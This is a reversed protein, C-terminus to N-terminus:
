KVLNYKDILSEDELIEDITCNLAICLKCLTELKVGDVLTIGQEFRQLTKKPIGSKEILENQSLGKRVRVEQLKTKPKWVESAKQPTMGRKSM